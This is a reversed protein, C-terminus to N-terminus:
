TGDNENEDSMLKHITDNLESMFQIHRQMVMLSNKIKEQDTHPRWGITVGKAREEETPERGQATDRMTAVGTTAEAFAMMAHLKSIEFQNRAYALRKEREKQNM